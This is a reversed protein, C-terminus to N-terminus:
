RLKINLQCPPAYVWDRAKIWLSNPASLLFVAYKVPPNDDCRILFFAETEKASDQDAKVATGAADAIGGYDATGAADATRTDEVPKADVAIGANTQICHHTYLESLTEKKFDASSSVVSITSESPAISARSPVDSPQILFINRLGRKTRIREIDCDKLETM